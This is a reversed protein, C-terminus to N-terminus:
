REEAGKQQHQHRQAHHDLRHQRDRAFQVADIMGSYHDAIRAVFAMLMVIVTLRFAAIRVVGEAQMAQHALATGAGTGQRGHEEGKGRHRLGGTDQGPEVIGGGGARREPLYM